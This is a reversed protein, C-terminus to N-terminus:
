KRRFLFARTPAVVSPSATTSSALLPQSSQITVEDDSAALSITEPNNRMPSLDWGKRSSSSSKMHLHKNVNDIQQNSRNLGLIKGVFGTRKISQKETHYDDETHQKKSIQKPVSKYLSIDPIDAEEFITPFLEIPPLHSYSSVTAVEHSEDDEEILSNSEDNDTTVSSLVKLSAELSPITKPSSRTTSANQIYEDDGLPMPQPSPKKNTLSSQFLPSFSLYQKAHYYDLTFGNPEYVRAEAVESLKIIADYENKQGSLAKTEYLIGVDKLHKILSLGVQGATKAAMSWPKAVWCEMPQVDYHQLSLCHILQSPLSAGSRVQLLGDYDQKWCDPLDRRVEQLVDRVCDNEKDVFIRLIEYSKTNNLDMLLIILPVNLSSLEEELSSAFTLLQKLDNNNHNHNNNNVRDHPIPDSLMHSQTWGGYHQVYSPINNNNKSSITTNQMGHHYSGSLDSLDDRSSAISRLEVISNPDSYLSSARSAGDCSEVATSSQQQSSQQKPSRRSINNEGRTAFLPPKGGGKSNRRERPRRAM